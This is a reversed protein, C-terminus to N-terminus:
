GNKGCVLCVSNVIKCKVTMKKGKNMNMKKNKGMMMGLRSGLRRNIFSFIHGERHM